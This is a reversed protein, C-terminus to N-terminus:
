CSRMIIQILLTRLIMKNILKILIRCVSFIFSWVRDPIFLSEESKNPFSANPQSRSLALDGLVREHVLSLTNKMLIVISLPWALM